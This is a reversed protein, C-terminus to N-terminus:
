SAVTFSVYDKYEQALLEFGTLITWYTREMTAKYEKKPTCAIMGDGDNTIIVPEDELAERSDTVAQALTYFLISVASCVIDQGKEAQGAHGTVKVMMTKPKFKIEIM